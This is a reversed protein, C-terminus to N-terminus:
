KVTVKLQASKGKGNFTKVTITAKGKKKATVKGSADVKVAKKGKKDVTYKFGNCGFKSSVKAKIQFSKKVKLKISKKNLTVKAKKDPAPKVTVQCTKKKGDVTVTIVAKGKKKAVLKGNKVTVIKKNSTKWEAKQNSANKPSVVAKLTFKEGVGLTLKTKNLKVSRVRIAPTQVAKVTVKCSASKGNVATATINATGAAKATVKGNQDVVAASLNDSKWTVKKDSANNPLVTATLTESKGVDLTLANKNLKVELVEVNAPSKKYLLYKGAKVSDITVKGDKGVICEIVEELANTQANYYSLTIKEGEQWGMKAADVTIQAGSVATQQAACLTMGKEGEQLLNKLEADNESDVDLRLNIDLVETEALKEGSFTWQYSSSGNVTVTLNKEGAKVEELVKGPLTITDIVAKENNALSDPINVNVAIEKEQSNKISEALSDPLLITVDKKQDVTVEPINVHFSGNEQKVAEPQVTISHDDGAVNVASVGELTPSIVMEGNADFTIEDVCTERHKGLGDGSTFINLPTYFRHYAMFYRDKNDTDKVHVVSQHASGLINKSEDKGLLWEKKMTVNVNGDDQILKDSVGYSVHYNPSNADDCSWTWHYKGNAKTVIVSERFGELGNIRKITGDKISMMDENLEAIVASGNGLLIYSTGDEDTFISPDIAQGVGAGAADTMAKTILASGKDKYPGAPHDAVAVGVASVGNSEKGCYYFYYKGNKKEITPAWASGNVAWPSAAIQVGKDNVGPNDNALELIIGEDEWNVMDPSSFAHFVTGSWNPYGDTTPYIWFKGNFYDIDPDAYQGPLVPNNSIIPKKITWTNRNSGRTFIVEADASLDLKDNNQFAEGGVTISDGNVNTKFSVPIDSVDAGRRVYPQIEKKDADLLATIATHDDTGRYELATDRDPATGVTVSLLEFPVQEIFDAAMAKIQAETLAKNEIRFNDLWGKCYEGNEWNAKGIQLISSGGLIYPLKYASETASVKEGNLYMTSDTETIVIDVRNWGKDTQIQPNKPREGNNNYRELTTTGGNELIGLYRESNYEPAKSDPAAYMIWNAKDTRDPKFEYSITLEKVGKLLSGGDKDTVTLFNTSGDLYLAKGADSSYSDQLAYSGAAKANESVFGKSGGEFSTEQDFDFEALVKQEVPEDGTPYGYHNMIAKYEADTVPLITGHRKKLSGFNVDTAASWSATTMDALNTSRFPLYGKGESYQDCMLGWTRVPNGEADKLWDDECYEFFEPGELKAGSYNNNNFIGSLTGIIEWGDYISDSAEITIEGDGSARYYKQTTDDYIMTTDIIDHDRDIWLVPKTFTYFDRTTCYYMNVPQGIENDEVSRTAWYVVYNGTVPDYYAEPAWAMGAGPIRSAVDALRPEGWNVLDTSEWIVLKTSGTTTAQANGWGGRNKISLDTALLWFKDGNHSRLLFPDRVGQEGVTSTLAPNGNTTMDVWQSGNESTAFYIQEDTVSGETGTFHAFLYSTTKEMEKKAKVTVIISRTDRVEEMSGTAILEVETDAAPRTVMGAEQNDKKTDTIVLKNKSEWTVTVKQKEGPAYCETPLTLNDRVANQDPIEIGALAAQIYEQVNLEKMVKVQFTKTSEVKGMSLKATLTVTKDADEPRTVMAQSGEIKIYSNQEVSWSIDSGNEGKVPLEFNERVETDIELAGNDASVMRELEKQTCLDAPTLAQNLITFNDIWGKYYEGDGWNAKGIQFISSTGLIDTLKYSSATSAARVGDIYLDTANETFVVDVHSWDVGTSGSACVPRSGNNNYREIKTNGGNIFAGIYHEQNNVQKEENPAAYFGWNTGTRDPKADFSITLADLGTLVSSGDTKQLKLYKASGDLYLAKGNAADREQLVVSGGTVVAEVGDSTFKGNQPEENFDFVSEGELRRPVKIEFNVTKEINKCVIKASLTVIKDEDAPRTVAAMGNEIRIVDTDSSTWSIITGLEGTTPLAFSARASSPVAIEQEAQEVAEEDTMTTISLTPLFKETYVYYGGVVTQLRFIAYPDERTIAEKVWETVDFSVEIDQIQNKYTIWQNSYVTKEKSYDNDKAPFAAGPANATNDSALEGYRGSDVQFLAAKTDCGNNLRDNGDSVIITVIAKSIQEPDVAGNDGTLASSLDFAMAAVRSSGVMQNGKGTVGDVFAASKETGTVTRENSGILISMANDTGRKEGRTGADVIKSSSVTRTTGITKQEEAAQALSAPLMTVAMAFSLMWALSRKVFQKM